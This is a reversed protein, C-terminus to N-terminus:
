KRTCLAPARDIIWVWQCYNVFACLARLVRVGVRKYARVCVRVGQLVRQHRVTMGRACAAERGPPGKKGIGLRRGVEYGAEKLVAELAAGSGVASVGHPQM